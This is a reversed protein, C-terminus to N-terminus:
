QQGGAPKPAATEKPPQTSIMAVTRNTPTFVKKAVRQVDAATVKDLKDLERFLERWNRHVNRLEVRFAVTDADHRLGNRM